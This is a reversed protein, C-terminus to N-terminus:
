KAQTANAQITSLYNTVNELRVYGLDQDSDIRHFIPGWIPMERSGHIIPIEDGAIISRIRAAPFKGGNRQAITTLDPVMAKLAPASPGDGRGDVGHCSACYNRYIKAGDLPLVVLRDDKLGAENPAPSKDQAVVRAHGALWVASLALASTLVRILWRKTM